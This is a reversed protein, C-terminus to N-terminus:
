RKSPPRAHLETHVRQGAEGAVEVSDGGGYFILKTGTISGRLSDHVSPLEAPRGTLEFKNDAETYLLRDGEGVRGPQQVHVDGTALISQLRSGGGFMSLAATGETAAEKGKAPPTLTAVARSASVQTTSSVIHVDGTAQLTAPEAGRASNIVMDAGTIQVAGRQTKSAGSRASAQEPLILRVPLRPARASMTATLSGEAQDVEVQQAELQASSTWLRAPRRDGVFTASGSAHTLTAHDALVHVQEDGKGGTQVLTAQVDGQAAADGTGQDLTIRGAQMQMGPGNVVPTGTLTLQGSSNDYEARAASARTDQPKAIASGQRQTGSAREMRHQSLIVHGQQVLSRIAGMGSRADGVRPPLLAAELTDGASSSRNGLSDSQDLHTSGTGTISSVYRTGAALSTTAHLTDGTVLTTRTTASGPAVDVGKRPRTDSAASRFEAAETATLERVETHHGNSALLTVLRGSSLTSPAGDASVTSVHVSGQLDAEVPNGSRDFRLAMTKSTATDGARELDVGGDGTLLEPKGAADLRAHLHSARGKVGGGGAFVVHGQADATQVQGKVLAFQLRDGAVQNGASEVRATQLVGLGAQRDFQAAAAAVHVPHGEHVGDLVVQSRLRLLGTDSEYDAGTAGGRLDGYVVTLPQDTAAVGLKQLFVLGRTTVAIRTTGPTHVSGPTVPADLDLHVEGAAKVIGNPQDYEFEDGRISDTQNSGKPGFVTIAVDHLTTKGNERQIAKAAHVTFLTRGKESKSLTFGNTESRVDLGLRRPIDALFRHARYHGYWLLGVLVATLGVVGSLLWGRLRAARGQRRRGSTGQQM